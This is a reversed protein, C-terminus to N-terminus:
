VRGRRLRIRNEDVVALGSALLDLVGSEVLRLAPGELMAWRQDHLRFVVIGAHTGIPYERINGFDLDFTMLVRDEATAEKLIKRDDSGGLKEDIVTSADHGANALLHALEAPKNEDLKVKM